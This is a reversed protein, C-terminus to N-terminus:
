LKDTRQEDQETDFASDSVNKLKDIFQKSVLGVLGSLAAIGFPTVDTGLNGDLLLGSRLIFYALLAMAAGIAPRLLFWWFWSPSLTRNGAYSAFSTAIHVFAGLAGSIMVIALATAETLNVWVVQGEHIATTPWVRLLTAALFVALAAVFLGVALTERGGHHAGSGGRGKQNVTTTGNAM